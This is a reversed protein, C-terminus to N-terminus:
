TADGRHSLSLASNAGSQGFMVALRSGGGSASSQFPLGSLSPRKEGLGAGTVLRMPKTTHRQKTREPDNASTPAAPGARVSGDCTRM